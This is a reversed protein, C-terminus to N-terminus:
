GLPDPCRHSDRHGLYDVQDVGFQCKEANIVVSDM